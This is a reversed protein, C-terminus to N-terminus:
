SMSNAVHGRRGARLSSAERAEGEIRPRDCPEAATAFVFAQQDVNRVVAGQELAGTESLAHGAVLTQQRHRVIAAPPM